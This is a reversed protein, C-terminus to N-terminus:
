ETLLPESARGKKASRAQIALGAIIFGLGVLTLMHIKEGLIFHILLLSIFPSIFILNSIRSAHRTYKMAMLWLMFTVGMEFLGVYVAGGLAAPALNLPWALVAACPTAFLFNQFLGIVPDRKDRSNLIWYAAWVLTSVLALAIGLLNLSQGSDDGGFSIVVVGSYSVLMAIVDTLTLKHGLFPVALFALMLAWTYNIPQAVQAPLLDYAYFLIHYYLLPNLLGFCLARWGNEQLSRMAETLRGQWLLAAGLAFVSTLSAFFVLQSVSQQALALKFATAVTSWLLVASLGYRLALSENTNRSVEQSM